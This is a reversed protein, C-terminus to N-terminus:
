AVVKALFYLGRYAPAKAISSFALAAGSHGHAEASAEHNYDTYIDYSTSGGAKAGGGLNPGASSSTYYDYCRHAHSPIENETLTHDGLSASGTPTVTANGGSGTGTVTTPCRPFYGRMDITPTGGYTGGDSIHWKTSSILYGGDQFDDDSGYYLMVGGVPIQAGLLDEFSMSDILDADLGSAPPFCLADSQTKSYHITPHIHADIAPKAEAAQTEMHNLNKATLQILATFNIKEYAM